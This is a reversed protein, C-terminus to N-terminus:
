RIADRLEMYRVALADIVEDIEPLRTGIVSEAKRVDLGLSEARLPGQLTRVSGKRCHGADLSLRRALKLVFEWKSVPTRAGVNLLGDADVELLQFVVEAFRGVDISSTFFDDFLTVPQSQTLADIAWEAFTPRGEWGRFGVLNTRLVLSRPCTVAFAEGAFKTRAYENLLRVSASEDHLQNADGTFYHDTSIQVLKIKWVHCYEALFAPLRANISYAAGPNRECSELSTEAAANIVVQPRVEDLVAYLARQDTADVLCQAGSRAVGVLQAGRRGAERALAQGLMGSVGLVVVSLTM